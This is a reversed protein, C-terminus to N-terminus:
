LGPLWRCRYGSGAVTFNDTNGDNVILGELNYSQNGPNYLEFWEGVSDDVNDPNSMYETIVLSGTGLLALDYNVDETADVGDCDQDITDNPIDEADISRLTATTVIMKMKLLAMTTMMQIMQIQVQSEPQSVQNELLSARNEPQSVQNELLSARSELLSVPSLLLSTPQPQISPSPSVTLPAQAEQHLLLLSPAVINVFRM